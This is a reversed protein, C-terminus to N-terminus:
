RGKGADKPLKDLHLMEKMKARGEPTLSKDDDIAKARAINAKDIEEKTPANMSTGNDCGMLLIPILLTLAKVLNKM